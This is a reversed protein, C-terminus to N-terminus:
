HDKLRQYDSFADLVTAYFTALNCKQPSGIPATFCQLRLATNPPNNNSKDPQPEDVIAGSSDVSGVGREVGVAIADLELSE